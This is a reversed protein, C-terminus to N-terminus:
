CGDGPPRANNRHTQSLTDSLNSSFPTLVCGGTSTGGILDFLECPKVVALNADQREQNLKTM